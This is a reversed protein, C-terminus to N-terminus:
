SAAVSRGAKSHRPAREVLDFLPLQEDIINELMPPRYRESKLVKGDERLVPDGSADLKSMNSRHVERVVADLDLGYTIASGYAVYVVDALADAIAVLDRREAADAFEEVEERLLRVRLQALTDAVHSTPLPERPLNFAEHFDLVLALVEGLAAPQREPTACAQNGAGIVTDVEDVTVVLRPVPLPPDIALTLQESVSHDYTGDSRRRLSAFTV